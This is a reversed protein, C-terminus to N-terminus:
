EWGKKKEGGGSASLFVTFNVGNPTALGKVRGKGGTFENYAHLSPRDPSNIGDEGEGGGRWFKRRSYNMKPLYHVVM